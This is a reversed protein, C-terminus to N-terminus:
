SPTISCAATPPLARPPRRLVRARQATRQRDEASLAWDADKAMQLNHRATRKFRERFSTPWRARWASELVERAGAVIAEAPQSAHTRRRRSRSRCRSARLDADGLNFSIRLPM